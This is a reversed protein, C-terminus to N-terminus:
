GNNVYVFTYTGSNNITYTITKMDNELTYSFDSQPAVIDYGKMDVKLTISDNNAVDSIDVKEIFYAFRIKNSNNRLTEIQASTLANVTSVTMGNLKFNTLNAIDITVWDTGNFSNWTISSDVSVALRLIGNGSLGTTWIIQSIDQIGTLDIDNKATVITPFNTGNIVYTPITSDNIKVESITNFQTKDVSVNFLEGELLTGNSTTNGSLSIDILHMTGDFGVNGIYNFNGGDSNDFGSSYQTIGTDGEIYKIVSTALGQLSVPNTLVETHTVPAILNLKTNKIQSNQVISNIKTAYTTLDDSQSALVGKNGLADVINQKKALLSNSIEVFTNSTTLTNDGIANISVTKANNANTFNTNNVETILSNIKSVSYTETTSTTSSDNINAGTGTGGGIANGNYYPQGGVETFKDIVSKNTHTHINNNVYEETAVAKLLSDSGVKLKDDTEDFVILYDDADGRNIKLGSKGATVGVGIENKNLEIINDEVRVTTSEVTFASGNMVMNGNVTLNDVTANGVLNINPANLNVQNTAGINANSGSGTAQVTVDANMGSTSLEVGSASIVKTTGVGTTKMTISQDLDAKIMITDDTTGLIPTDGIYLTNTSLMAENVYIAGFRNTPSGINQTGNESALIDGDVIINGGVYTVLNALVISDLKIKDEKSMQGDILETAMPINASSGLGIWTIGNWLVMQSVDQIIRVDSVNNGTIPLVSETTVSEKWNMGRAISNVLTEIETKSLTELKTYRNSLENQLNTVDSVGHIHTTNAKNNLLNNVQAQTYYNSLDLKDNEVKNGNFLLDGNVYTFLSLIESNLLALKQKEITTFDNSSLGTVTLTVFTDDNLTFVLQNGNQQTITKIGSTVQNTVNTITQNVKAIEEDTHGTSMIYSDFDM